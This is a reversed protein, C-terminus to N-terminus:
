ELSHRVFRIARRVNGGHCEAVADLRQLDVGYREYVSRIKSRAIRRRMILFEVFAGAIVGVLVAILMCLITFGTEDVRVQVLGRRFAFLAVPIAIILVLIPGLIMGYLVGVKNMSCSRRINRLLAHLRTDPMQNLWGEPLAVGIQDCLSPLGAAPSWLSVPIAGFLVASNIQGECFDCRAAKGLQEQSIPISNLCFVRLVNEIRVAGMDKCHPCWGVSWDSQQYDTRWSFHIPLHM